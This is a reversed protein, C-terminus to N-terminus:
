VESKCNYRWTTMCSYTSAAVPLVSTSIQDQCSLFPFDVLLCPALASVCFLHAHANGVASESKLWDCHQIEAAADQRVLSLYLYLVSLLVFILSCITTYVKSAVFIESLRGSSTKILVEQSVPTMGCSLIACASTTMNLLPLWLPM